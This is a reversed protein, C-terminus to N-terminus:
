IDLYKINRELIGSARFLMHRILLLINSGTIFDMKKIKFQSRDFGLDLDSYLKQYYLFSITLVKTLSNSSVLIKLWPM